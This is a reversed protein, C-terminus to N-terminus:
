AKTITITRTITAGLRKQRQEQEQETEKQRLNTYISTLLIYVNISPSHNVEPMVGKSAM